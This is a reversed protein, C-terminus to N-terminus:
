TYNKRFAEPSLGTHKKFFRVFYSADEYGLHGAIQIIQNSTALLYRKAELIVRDNILESASKGLLTKTTNNLQYTSLNLLAAYQSPNKVNSLNSELLSLFSELREQMYRNVSDGRDKSGKRSLEIFVLDMNAKIAAQYNEQRRNYEQLAYALITHLKQFSNSEPQYFNNSSAKRLLGTSASDHFAYFESRFQILHGTSGAKLLLEHVQGPRMFFISNNKVPYSSFDIEHSGSGKKLALLYFFDHRHLKQIMDKGALLSAIDRVSVLESPNPEKSSTIRRVPIKDM